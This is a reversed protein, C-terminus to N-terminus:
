IISLSKLEALLKEKNQPEMPCLPARYTESMMGMASLAAKVPIPNSEIFLLDMLKRYKYFLNRAEAVRGNLSADMLQSFEKPIVNAIVSICGDGGLINCLM